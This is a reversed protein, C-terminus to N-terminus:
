GGVLNSVNPIYSGREKAEGRRYNHLPCPSNMRRLLPFPFNVKSDVLLCIGTTVTLTFLDDGHIGMHIYIYIYMQFHKSISVYM